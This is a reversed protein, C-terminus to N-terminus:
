WTTEDKQSLRVKETSLSKMWRNICSFMVNFFSQTLGRIYVRKFQSPILASQM